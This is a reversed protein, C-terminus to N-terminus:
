CNLGHHSALSAMVSGNKIFNRSSGTPHAPRQRVLEDPQYLSHHLAGSQVPLNAAVFDATAEHSSPFSFRWWAAPWMQPIRPIDIRPLLGRFGRQGLNTMIFFVRCVM